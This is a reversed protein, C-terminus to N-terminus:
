NQRLDKSVLNHAEDFITVTNDLDGEWTDSQARPFESAYTDDDKFRWSMLRNAFKKFSYGYIGLAAAVSRASVKPNNDIYQLIKAQTTKNLATKRGFAEILKQIKESSERLYSLAQGVDEAILEERAESNKEGGHRNHIRVLYDLREKPTRLDVIDETDEDDDRMSRIAKKLEPNVAFMVDGNEDKCIGDVIKQMFNTLNKKPTVVNIRPLGGKKRWERWNPDVLGQRFARCIAVMVCTKGSGTSHWVLLNRNPNSPVRIVSANDRPPGEFESSDANVFDSVFRQYPYLGSAKKNPDTNPMCNNVGKEPLTMTWDRQWNKLHTLTVAAFADIDTEASPWQLHEKPQSVKIEGFSAGKIRMRIKNDYVCQPNNDSPHLKVFSGGSNICNNEERRLAMDTVEKQLQEDRRANQRAELAALEEASEVVEDEDERKKQGQMLNHLDRARRINDKQQKALQQAKYSQLTQSGVKRKIIRQKM